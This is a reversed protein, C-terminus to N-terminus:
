VQTVVECGVTYLGGSAVVEDHGAGCDVMASADEVVIDDDGAGTSVSVDSNAREVRVDDDGNGTNVVFWRAYRCEASGVGGTCNQDGGSVHIPVIVVGPDELVLTGYTSDQRAVLHNATGIRDTYTVIGYGPPLINQETELVAVGTGTGDAAGVPGAVSIGGAWLLLGLASALVTRRASGTGM